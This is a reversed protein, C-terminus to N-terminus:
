SNQVQRHKIINDLVDRRKTIVLLMGAAIVCVSMLPLCGYVQSITKNNM